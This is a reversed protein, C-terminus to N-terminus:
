EYTQSRNGDRSDKCQRYEISGSIVTSRLTTLVQSQFHPYLLSKCLGSVLPVVRLDMKRLLNKEVAPDVHQLSEPSEVQESKDKEM